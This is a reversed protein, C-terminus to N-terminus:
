WDVAIDLQYSNWQVFGGTDCVLGTGLSTEVLSGRPHLSFDAAVMVYPGLMKVGDERIWYPYEEESFGADRMIVVIYSMDLNYWTEKYGQQNYNVGKAMTLVADGSTGGSPQQYSVSTPESYEDCTATIAVESTIDELAYGVISAATTEIYDFSADINSVLGVVSSAYQTTAETCIIASDDGITESDKSNTICISSIAVIITGFLIADVIMKIRDKLKM